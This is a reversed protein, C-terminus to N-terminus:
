EDFPEENVWNDTEEAVAKGTVSSSVSIKTHKIGLYKLWVRATENSIDGSSIMTKLNLDEKNPNSVQDEMLAKILTGNNELIGSQSLNFDGSRSFGYPFKKYDYFKLMLLNERTNM